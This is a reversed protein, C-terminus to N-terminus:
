DIGRLLQNIDVTRWRLKDDARAFLFQVAFIHYGTKSQRQLREELLFLFLSHADLRNWRGAIRDAQRSKSLSDGAQGIFRPQGRAPCPNRHWPISPEAAEGGRIM